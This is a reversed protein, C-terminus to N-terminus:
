EKKPKLKKIVAKVGAVLVDLDELSTYVNPSIRVGQVGNISSTTQHIRHDRALENSLENPGIGEVEFLAIGAAYRPDFSTHFTIGDIDKLQNAWYNKLYRLRAEKLTIGIQRHFLIASHIAEEKALSFTGRHEFKEIKDVDAESSPFMSWIDKIREKRVYLFGTGLPACLWKHLSTAYADCNLDRIKFDIQAFSHAGDVLSFIGKSRAVSTIKQIAEVPLIQGTWNSIQTLHVLKTKKTFASTYHEVIAADDEIPLPYKVWVLKVGYRKALQEWGLKVTSYDYVCVVIEDGRKWDIGSIVTQLATTTNEMLALEEAACGAMAALKARLVSRNRIYFRWLFFSPMENIHKAYKFEADLVLRPQPSVGGNNLNIYSMSIDYAARVQLWLDEAQAAQEAPLSQLEELTRLLATDAANSQAALPSLGTLSFSGAALFLNKLFSRRQETM